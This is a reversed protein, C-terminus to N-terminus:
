DICPKQPADLDRCRGSDDHVGSDGKHEPELLSETADLQAEMVPLPSFCTVLIALPLYQLATAITTVYIFSKPGAVPRLATALYPLLGLGANAAIEVMSARVGSIQTYERALGMGIPFFAASGIGVLLTGIWPVLVSGRILVLIVM